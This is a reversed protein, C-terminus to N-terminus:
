VFNSTVSGKVREDIQGLFISPLRESENESVGKIKKRRATEGEM